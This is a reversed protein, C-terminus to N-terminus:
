DRMKNKYNSIIEDKYATIDDIFSVIFQLTTTDCKNLRDIIQDDILYAKSVHSSDMLFYDISKDLAVSIKMMMELSPKNIGNEIASLHNSSCNCISVLDNQTLRRLKRVKQIRKGMKVLDLEIDIESIDTLDQMYDGGDTHITFM